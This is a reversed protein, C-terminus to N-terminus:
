RTIKWARVAAFSAHVAPCVAIDARLEACVEDLEHLIDLARALDVAAVLTKGDVDGRDCALTLREITAADSAREFAEQMDRAAREQAAIESSLMTVKVEDSLALAAARDAPDGVRPPEVNPVTYVGALSICYSAGCVTCRTFTARKEDVVSTTQEHGGACIWGLSMM